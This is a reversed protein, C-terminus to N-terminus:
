VLHLSKPDCPISWKLPHPKIFAAALTRKQVNAELVPKTTCICVVKSNKPMRTGSIKQLLFEPRKSKTVMIKHGAKLSESEFKFKIQTSDQWLRVFLLVQLSKKKSSFLLRFGSAKERMVKHAHIGM